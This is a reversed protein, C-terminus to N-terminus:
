LNEIKSYLLKNNGEGKWDLKAVMAAAAAAAAPFWDYM